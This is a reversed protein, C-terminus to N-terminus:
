TRICVKQNSVGIATQADTVAAGNLQNIDIAMAIGESEGNRPSLEPLHYVLWKQLAQLKNLPSLRWTAKGTYERTNEDSSSDM